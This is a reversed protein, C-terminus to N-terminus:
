FQIEFMAAMLFQAFVDTWTIWVCIPIFDVSVSGIRATLLFKCSIIPCYCVTGSRKYHVLIWWQTDVNWHKFVLIQSKKQSHIHGFMKM